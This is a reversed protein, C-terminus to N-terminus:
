QIAGTAVGGPSGVAAARTEPASKVKVPMGDRLAQLSSVAVRDGEKL